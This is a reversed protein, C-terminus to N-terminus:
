RLTRPCGRSTNPPLLPSNRTPKRGDLTESGGFTRLSRSARAPHRFRRGGCCSPSLAPIQSSESFTNRMNHRRFRSRWGFSRLATGRLFCSARSSRAPHGLCSRRGCCTCPFLPARSSSESFTVRIIHRLRTTAARRVLSGTRTLTSSFKFLAKIIRPLIRVAVDMYSNQFASESTDPTVLVSLIYEALERFLLLIYEAFFFFRFM